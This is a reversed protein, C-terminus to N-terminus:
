CEKKSLAQIAWCFSNVVLAIAWTIPLLFFLVEYVATDNFDYRLLDIRGLTEYFEPYLLATVALLLLASGGMTLLFTKAITMWQYQPRLKQIVIPVGVPILIFCLFPYAVYRLPIDCWSQIVNKYVVLFLCALIFIGVLVLIWALAEKRRSKYREQQSYHLVDAVTQDMQDMIEREGKEHLAIREGMVIESISVGLVDALVPLFSVEPFGRGTEWRSVAKDTVGIQEALEKQTLGQQKRLASIFKGTKGLDM